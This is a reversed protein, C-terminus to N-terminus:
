VTLDNEAKLNITSLMALGPADEHQAMQYMIPTIAAFMLGIAIGCYAIRKLAKVSLESFTQDKDIYTLLKFAQFLATLFAVASLSFAAFMPYHGYPIEPYSETWETLVAPLLFYCLVLTALGFLVLVGKLFLNSSRNKSIAEKIM